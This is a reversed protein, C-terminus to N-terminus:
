LNVLKNAPIPLTSSASSLRSHVTGGWGPPADWQSMNSEAHYYYREGKSSTCEKWGVAM